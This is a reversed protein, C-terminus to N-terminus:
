AKLEHDISMEEENLEDHLDAVDKKIRSVRRGLRTFEFGLMSNAFLATYTAFLGTGSIMLLIGIIKGSSTQPTIDGYGVTTVTSFSWWVADLFNRIQPNIGQEIQYFVLAAIFVAFNCSFTMVWFPVSTLLEKLRRFFLSPSYRM